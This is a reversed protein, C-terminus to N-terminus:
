SKVRSTFLVQVTSVPNILVEEFCINPKTFLTTNTLRLLTCYYYLIIVQRVIQDSERNSDRLKSQM